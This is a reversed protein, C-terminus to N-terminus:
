FDYRVVPTAAPAAASESGRETPRPAVRTASGGRALLYGEAALQEYAGLVVGRSVGLDAALRRSSPLVAGTALRGIRIADRLGSEVQLRLPTESKAVLPLLLDPSTARKM